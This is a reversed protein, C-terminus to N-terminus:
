FYLLVSYSIASSRLLIVCLWGARELREITMRHEPFIHQMEKLCRYLIQLGNERKGLIYMLYHMQDPFHIRRRHICTSCVEMIHFSTESLVSYQVLPKQLIRTDIEVTLTRRFFFEEETILPQGWEEDSALLQMKSVATGSPVPEFSKPRFSISRGAIKLNM